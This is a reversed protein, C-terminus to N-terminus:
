LIAQYAEQAFLISDRVHQVNNTDNSRKMEISVIGAYNSDALEKAIAKHFPLTDASIPNLFPQSCHVHTIESAIKRVEDVSEGNMLMVGTDLQLGTGPSNIRRVLDATEALHTLFDCGYDAANPELCITCGNLAAIKGVEAFFEAAINVAETNTHDHKRRNQPSGFVLKTAGCVGALSIVHQLFLYLDEREADTGFLQLAPYGFLLAQFAAISIGQQNWWNRHKQFDEITSSATPQKAFAAPAAEIKNVGLGTLLSAIAADEFDCWAINSVALNM